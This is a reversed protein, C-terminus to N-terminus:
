WQGAQMRIAVACDSFIELKTIKVRVGLVGSVGMLRECLKGILTELLNVHEATCEDIIIERVKRYDLVSYIDDDQPQLAQPGRNLEVDVQIPQPATKEHELIGLTADFRLGRLELRQQGSAPAAEFGSLGFSGATASEAWPKVAVREVGVFRSDPYIDPKGSAVRVAQVQPRELMRQLIADCLTEQLDHHGASALRKIEERVFDYDLTESLDDARASSDALRVCLDVDFWMRQPLRREFDHVGVSVRTELQRLSLLRCRLALQPDIAAFALLVPNM